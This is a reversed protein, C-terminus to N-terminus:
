ERPEPLVATAEIEVRAEKEMLAVVQVVSMAPFNKGMVARYAAGIDALQEYYEERSTVYWTLRVVHKPAGGAEALIAVINLLAQRVQDAMRPSAFRGNGDWGIQGAVYIQRGRAAVGNSYGRPRAWGRPQLVEIFEKDTSM